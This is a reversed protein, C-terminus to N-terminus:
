RHLRQSRGPVSSSLGDLSQIALQCFRVLGNREPNRCSSWDRM